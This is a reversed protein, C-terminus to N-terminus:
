MAEYNRESQFPTPVSHWSDSSDLDAGSSNNGKWDTNSNLAKVPPWRGYILVRSNNLRQVHMARSLMVREQLEIAPLAGNYVLWVQYVVADPPMVKQVITASIKKTKGRRDAETRYRYPLAQSECM